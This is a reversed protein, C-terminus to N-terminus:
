SFMLSEKENQTDCEVRVSCLYFGMYNPSFINSSSSIQELKIKSEFVFNYM